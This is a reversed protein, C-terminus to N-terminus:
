RSHKPRGRYQVGGSEVVGQDLATARQAQAAAELYRGQRALLDALLQRAARHDGDLAIAQRLCEEAAGFDGTALQCNGLAYWADPDDPQEKLYSALMETAAAPADIDVYLETLACLLESSRSVQLVALLGAIAQETRGSLHLLRARQILAGTHEPDVAVADEACRLAASLRDLREFVVASNLRPAAWEPDAAGARRFCFLAADLEGAEAHLVGDLNDARAIVAAASLEVYEDGPERDRARAALARAEGASGRELAIEARVILAAGDARGPDAADLVADAEEFRGRDIGLYRALTAAAGILGPDGALASRLLAEGRDGDGRRLLARGHAYCVAPQQPAARYARAFCESAQDDDTGLLELGRQLEVRWIERVPEGSVDTVARTNM